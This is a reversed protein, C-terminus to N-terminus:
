SLNENTPKDLIWLNRPFIKFLELRDITTNNLYYKLVKEMFFM